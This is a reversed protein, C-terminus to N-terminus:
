GYIYYILKKLFFNGALVGVVFLGTIIWGMGNNNLHLEKDNNISNLKAPILINDPFKLNHGM